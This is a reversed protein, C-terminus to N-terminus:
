ILKLNNFKNNKYRGTLISYMTPHKVNHINCYDRISEYFIGTNYDILLLSRTPKGKRGKLALSIKQKSEATHKPKPKGKQSLSIKLKTEESLPKRKKGAHAKSMNARHEDSAKRGKNWSPKGLMRKSMEKNQESTRVKGKNAISIKMRTEASLRGSQNTSTTLKLNLGYQGTVDYYDQWYREKEHLENEDCEEILQFVHTSSGHKKLSNYLKTQGKCDIWKYKKFRRLIDTSCGIYIKGSPSTIKYIGIM